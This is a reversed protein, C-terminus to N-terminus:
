GICKFSNLDVVGYFDGIKVGQCYGSVNIDSQHYRASGLGEHEAPGNLTNDVQGLTM